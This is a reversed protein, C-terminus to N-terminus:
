FLATQEFLVPLPSLYPIRDEPVYRRATGRFDLSTELSCTAEIKLTSYVLLFLAKERLSTINKDGM